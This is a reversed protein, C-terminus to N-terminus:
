DTTRGRAGTPTVGYRRRFCRNFYSLDSFGVELAVDGIRVPRPSTLLKLAAALRLELVRESLSAGSEQLLVHVYRVSLGQATAITEACFGPDRFGQRALRVARLGGLRAAEAADGRAGLALVALDLCHEAALATLQPDRYGDGELVMASYAKLLKLAGETDPLRTALLDEAMPARARLAAGPLSINCWLNTPDVSRAVGPESMSVLVMSGSVDGSERGCTEISVAGPSAPAVLVFLDNNDAAIQAPTRRASSLTGTMRAISVDGLGALEFGAEFPAAPHATWELVGPAGRATNEAQMDAWATFRRAEPIEAPLLDSSFSLKFTM